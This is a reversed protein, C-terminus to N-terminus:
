TGLMTWWFMTTKRLSRSRQHGLCEDVVIEHELRLGSAFEEVGVGLRHRDEIVVAVQGRGLDGVIVSEAVQGFDPQGAVVVLPPEHPRGAHGFAVDGALCGVPLLEELPGLGDGPDDAVREVVPGVELQALGEADGVTEQVGLGGPADPFLAVRSEGLGLEGASAYHFLPVDDEHAGGVVGGIAQVGVLSDGLVGPAFGVDQRGPAGVLGHRDLVRGREARPHLAELASGVQRDVGELVEQGGETAAVVEEVLHAASDGVVPHFGEVLSSSAAFNL